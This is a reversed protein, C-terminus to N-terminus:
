LAAVDLGLADSAEAFVGKAATFQDHFDKAMGPKQSGQGPFVFAVVTDAAPRPM